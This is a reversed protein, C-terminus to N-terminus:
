YQTPRRPNVSRIFRRRDTPRKAIIINCRAAMTLVLLVRYIIVDHTFRSESYQVITNM